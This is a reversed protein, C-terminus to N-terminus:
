RDFRAVIRVSVGACILMTRLGAILTVNDVGWWQDFLVRAEEHWDTQTVEDYDLERLYAYAGAIVSELSRMSKRSGNSVPVFSRRKPRPVEIARELNNEYAKAIGM